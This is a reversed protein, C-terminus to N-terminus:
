YNLISENINEFIERLHKFMAEYEKFTGNIYTNTWSDLIKVEEIGNGQYEEEFLEIFAKDTAFKNASPIRAYTGITWGFDFKIAITMVKVNVIMTKVM